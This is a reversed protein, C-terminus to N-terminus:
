STPASARPTSAEAPESPGCARGVGQAAAAAAAEGCRSEGAAPRRQKVAWPQEVAALGSDKIPETLPRYPRPLANKLREIKVLLNNIGNWAECMGPVPPDDLPMDAAQARKWMRVYYRHQREVEREIRELQERTLEMSRM